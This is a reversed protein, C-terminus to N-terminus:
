NPKIVKFYFNEEIKDNNKIIGKDFTIFPMESKVCTNQLYYADVLLIFDEKHIGCARLTQFQGFFSMPSPHSDKKYLKYKFVIKLNKRSVKFSDTINKRFQKFELKGSIIDKIQTIHENSFNRLTKKTSDYNFSPNSFKSAITEILDNLDHNLYKINTCETLIKKIFRLILTKIKDLVFECEKEVNDSAYRKFNLNFYNGSSINLGDWGIVYGIIVNSDLFHNQYRDM